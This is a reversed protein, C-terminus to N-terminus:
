KLEELEVGFKELRHGFKMQHTLARRYLVRSGQKSFAPQSTYLIIRKELRETGVHSRKDTKIHESAGFNGEKSSPGAQKSTTRCAVYGLVQTCPLSYKEHWLCSEGNRALFVMWRGNADFPAVKDQFKQFETWFIDVIDYNEKGVLIMWRELIDKGIRSSVEEEEENDEDSDIYSWGDGLSMSRNKTPSFMMREQSTCANDEVNGFLGDKDFCNVSM